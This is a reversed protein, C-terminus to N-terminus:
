RLIKKIMEEMKNLLNIRSKLTQITISNNIERSSNRTEGFLNFLFYIIGGIIVGIGATKIFYWVPAFFHHEVDLGNPGWDGFCGKFGFIVGLIGCIWMCWFGTRRMNDKSSDISGGIQSEENNIEHELNQISNIILGSFIKEEEKILTEFDSTFKKTEIADLYSDRRILHAFRTKEKKFTVEQYENINLNNYESIIKNFKDIKNILINYYENSSDYIEDKMKVILENVKLRIPDFLKDQDFKLFYRIDKKFTFDLNSISKEINGLQADDLLGSAYAEDGWRKREKAETGKPSDLTKLISRLVETNQEIQWIVESIGWEFVAGLNYIGNSIEDLSYSLESFGSRILESTREQSSIISNTSTLLAEIQNDSAKKIAIKQNGVNNGLKIIEHYQKKEEWPALENLYLSM